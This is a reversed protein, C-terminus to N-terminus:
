TQTHEILLQIIKEALIRDLSDSSKTANNFNRVKKLVDDFYNEPLPTSPLLKLVMDLVCAAEIVRGSNISQIMIDRGIEVVDLLGNDPFCTDRLPLIVDLISGVDSFRKSDIAEIMCTRGADFYTAPICTGPLTEIMDLIEEAHIFRRNNIARIMCNRGAEVVDVVKIFYQEPFCTSPLARIISAVLDADSLRDNNLAQIICAGGEAAALLFYDEAFHTSSPLKEIIKLAASAQPPFSSRIAEVVATRVAAVVDIFYNESIETGPLTKILDLISVAGVFHKRKVLQIILDRSRTYLKNVLSDPSTWNTMRQIARVAKTFSPITQAVQVLVEAGIRSLNRNLAYGFANPVHQFIQLLVENPLIELSAPM